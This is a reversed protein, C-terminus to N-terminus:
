YGYFSHQFQAYLQELTVSAPAPNDGPHSWLTVQLPADEGYGADVIEQGTAAGMLPSTGSALNFLSATSVAGTPFVIFHMLMSTGLTQTSQWVSEAQFFTPVEDFEVVATAGSQQTALSGTGRAGAAYVSYGIFVNVEL